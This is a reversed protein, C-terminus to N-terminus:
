TNLMSRRVMVGFDSDLPPLDRVPERRIQAVREAVTSLLPPLIARTKRRRKKM